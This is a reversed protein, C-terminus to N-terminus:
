IQISEGYRFVKETERIVVAAHRIRRVSQHPVYMGKVRIQGPPLGEHRIANPSYLSTELGRENETGTVFYIGAGTTLM